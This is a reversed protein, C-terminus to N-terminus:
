APLINAPDITIFYGFFFLLLSLLLLLNDVDCDCCEDYDCSGGYHCCQDCDCDHSWIITKKRFCILRSILLACAIARYDICERTDINLLPDIM